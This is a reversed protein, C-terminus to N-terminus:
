EHLDEEDTNDTVPSHQSKIVKQEFSMVIDMIQKEKQTRAYRIELYPMLLDNRVKWDILIQQHFGFISM